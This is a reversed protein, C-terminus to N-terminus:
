RPRSVRTFHRLDKLPRLKRRLAIAIASRPPSRTFWIDGVNSVTTLSRFVADMVGRSGFDHGSLLGGLRLKPAWALIDRVVSEYSHDTDIFVWDLSCSEFRSAAEVSETVLV